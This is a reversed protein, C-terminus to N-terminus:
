VKEGVFEGSEISRILCGYIYENLLFIEIQKNLYKVYSKFASKCKIKGEKFDGEEKQIRNYCDVQVERAYEKNNKLSQLLIHPNTKHINQEVRNM